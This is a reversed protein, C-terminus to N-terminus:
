GHVPCHSGCVHGDHEHKHHTHTQAANARAPPAEDTKKGFLAKFLDALGQMVKSFFGQAEQKAQSAPQAHEHGFHDNVAALPSKALSAGKVQLKFSTPATTTTTSCAQLQM